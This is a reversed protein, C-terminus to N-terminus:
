ISIKKIRFVFEHAIRNRNVYLAIFFSITLALSVLAAITESMTLLYVSVMTVVLIICPFVVALRIAKRHLRESGEVVVQEGPKFLMAENCEIQLLDTRKIGHNCLKAAPCSDCENNDKISVTVVRKETDTHVITAYHEICDTTDNQLNM